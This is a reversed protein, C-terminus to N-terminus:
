SAVSVYFRCWFHDFFSKKWRFQLLVLSCFFDFSFNNNKFHIMTLRSACVFVAIIKKGNAGIIRNWQFIFRAYLFRYFNMLIETMFIIQNRNKGWVSNDNWIKRTKQPNKKEETNKKRFSACWFAVLEINVLIKEQKSKKEQREPFSNTWKSRPTHNRGLTIHM